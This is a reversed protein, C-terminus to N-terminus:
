WSFSSQEKETDPNDRRESESPVPIWDLACMAALDRVSCGGPYNESAMQVFAHATARADYLAGHRKSKSDTGLLASDLGLRDILQDLGQKHGSGYLARAMKLTDLILAPKYAPLKLGLVRREVSANHAVLLRDDLFRELVPQIDSFAPRGGVDKDYVGHIRSIFLPIAIGPNLLQHYVRDSVSGDRVLVVAIDVVGEKERHQAGTGELDVVAYEFSRWDRALAENTLLM